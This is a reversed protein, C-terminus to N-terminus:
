SSRIRHVHLEKCHETTIIGHLTHGQCMPLALFKYYKGPHMKVTDAVCMALRSAKENEGWGSTTLINSHAEPSMFGNALLENATSVITGRFAITMRDTCKILTKYEISDEMKFDSLRL